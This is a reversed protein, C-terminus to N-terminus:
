DEFKLNLNYWFDFDEETKILDKHTETLISFMKDVLKLVEIDKTNEDKLQLTNLIDTLRKVTSQAEKITDVVYREQYKASETKAKNRMKQLQEIADGVSQNRGRQM